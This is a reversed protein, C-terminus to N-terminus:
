LAAYGTPILLRLRLVNCLQKRISIGQALSCTDVLLCEGPNELGLTKVRCKAVDITCPLYSNNANM